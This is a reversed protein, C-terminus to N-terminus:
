LILENRRRMKRRSASPEGTTRFDNSTSAVVPPETDTLPQENL